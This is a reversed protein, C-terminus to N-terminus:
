PPLSFCHLTCESSILHRIAGGGRFRGLRHGNMSVAFWCTGPGLAIGGVVGQILLEQGRIHVFGQPPHSIVAHASLTSVPVGDWVTATSAITFDVPALAQIHVTESAHIRLSMVEEELHEEDRPQQYKQQEQAVRVGDELDASFEVTISHRGARLPPVMWVLAIVIQGRPAGHGGGTTVECSYPDPLVSSGVLASVNCLRGFRVKKRQGQGGSVDGISRSSEQGSGDSNAGEPIVGGGQMHESGSGAEGGTDDGRDGQMHETAMMMSCDCASEELRGSPLRLEARVQIQTM